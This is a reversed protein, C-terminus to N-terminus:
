DGGNLVRHVYSIRTTAVPCANLACSLSKASLSQFLMASRPWSGPDRINDRVDDTSESGAVSSENEEVAGEGMGLGVEGESDEGGGEGESM